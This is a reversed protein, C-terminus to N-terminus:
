EAVLPIAIHDLVTAGGKGHPEKALVVHLIQDPPNSPLLAKCSKDPAILSLNFEVIRKDASSPAGGRLRAAAFRIQPVGAGPGTAPRVILSGLDAGEGSVWACSERGSRGALGAGILLEDEDGAQFALLRLRLGARLIDTGEQRPASKGAPRLAIGYRRFANLEKESAPLWLAWEGGPAPGQLFCNRRCSGPGGDGAWYLEPLIQITPKPSRRHAAPASKWDKRMVAFLQVPAAATIKLRDLFARWPLRANILCEPGRGCGPNFAGSPDHYWVGKEDYGTVVIWHLRAVSMLMVPWGGSIYRKIRSVLQSEQRTLFFAHSHAALGAATYRARVFQAHHQAATAGSRHCTLLDLAGRCPESVKGEGAAIEWLEADAGAYKLAMALSAPGCWNRAGQMYYPVQLRESRPLESCAADVCVGLALCVIFLPFVSRFIARRINLM